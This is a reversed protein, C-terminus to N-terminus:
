GWVYRRANFVQDNMGPGIQVSYDNIVWDDGDIQVRDEPELIPIHRAGISIWFSNEESRLLENAAEADCEPQTLLMQNNAEVFRDGYHAILDDDKANGFVYAGAMRVHNTLNAYDNTRKVGTEGADISMVSSRQRKKWARLAGNYRVFWKVYRGDLTRALGGAPYEGPDLTLFEAIECLEPVQIDTYVTESEGFSGFGLKVEPAVTDHKDSYSMILVDNMYVSISRWVESENDNLHQQQFSVVVDAEEPAVIPLRQLVINYGYTIIPFGYADTGIGHWLMADDCTLYLMQQVSTKHYKVVFNTPLVANTFDATWYGAVIGEVSFEAQEFRNDFQFDHIGSWSGALRFAEEVSLAPARNNARLHGFAVGM